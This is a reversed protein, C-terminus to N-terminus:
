SLCVHFMNRDSVTCEEQGSNRLKLTHPITWDLRGSTNADGLLLPLLSPSPSYNCLQMQQGSVLADVIFSNTLLSSYLEVTKLHIIQGNLDDLM